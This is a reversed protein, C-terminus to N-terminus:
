EQTASGGLSNEPSFTDPESFETKEVIWVKENGFGENKYRVADCKKLEDKARRITIGSYGAEKAQEEMEKSKMRGGNKDLLNLLFQKCDERKPASAALVADQMYERDRKWTTGIRQPLGNQGITFLITEQLQSYNNKENSLYRTSRDETIGAMIVSRAIDWLDASDAIRDRGWAGKRKNTHCIVLFTTGYEEGLSILPAMCDRMANRSGMNIDPPIFGQVPDFICIVLKFSAIFRRMKESGFKMDRLNGEKDTLFDPSVINHLNAGAIRLKKRLKKRVSDETTLFGVKEPKRVYGPPDLICNTGSSLASLIDCWITTKGVGGDAALLTIQEKPIWGPIIWEPEEEEFADLTRFCSLFPDEKQAEEESWEPTALELAELKMFVDEAPMSALLDSIDGKEPLEPFEKKLDLVKVSAAKGALEEAAKGALERGPKDNDPLIVVHKGKLAETYQPRWKSKAGDPPSVAAVSHARLNDADKEGEVFYVHDPLPNEGTGYLTPTIGQRNYKWGGKGDPQRWRFSKDSFRQKEYRVGEPSLYKYTAVIYAKAEPRFDQEPTARQFLDGIELGMAEAIEPVTCGAHCTVLIKGDEGASVSLSARHDDHAPCKASYQNGRGHVGDLRSLFDELTM